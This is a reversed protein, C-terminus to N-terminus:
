IEICKEKVLVPRWLRLFAQFSAEEVIHRLTAWAIATGDHTATGRGLEDLIVLSHNTCKDLIETTELMESLFTSQGWWSDWGSRVYIGDILSITASEAPVYSGLHAMIVVLAVQRMYSSKGGMNPGTIICCRMTESLDTDNSVYYQQASSLELVPHRGQVIRITASDKPLM